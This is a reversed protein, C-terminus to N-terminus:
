DALQEKAVALAKEDSWAAKGLAVRDRNIRQALREIKDEVGVIELRASQYLKGTEDAEFASNVYKVLDNAVGKFMTLLDQVNEAVSVQGTREARKGEKEFSAKINKTQM